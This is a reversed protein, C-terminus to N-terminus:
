LWGILFWFCTASLNAILAHIYCLSQCDFAHLLSIPFWFCTASLNSILLMYCHSQFDFAHLLSIPFWFCTASLILKSIFIGYSPVRHVDGLYIYLLFDITMANTAFLPTFIIALWKYKLQTVTTVRLSLELDTQFRQTIWHKPTSKTNESQM